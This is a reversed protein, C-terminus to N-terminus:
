VDIGRFVKFALMRALSDEDGFLTYDNINMELLEKLVQEKSEGSLVFKTINSENYELFAVPSEGSVSSVCMTYWSQQNIHRSHLHAKPRVMYPIVQYNTGFRSGEEKYNFIAVNQGKEAQYFAFFAAIWPSQTWDLLPSPFGLHRLYCLLEYCPSEPDLNALRKGLKKFEEATILKFDKTVLTSLMPIVENLYEYYRNAEFEFFEDPDSNESIEKLYRELTTELKWGSNAQGRYVLKDGHQRQLSGQLDAIKEKFKEWTLPNEETGVTEM